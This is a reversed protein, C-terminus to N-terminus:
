LVPELVGCALRAGTTGGPQTFHDDGEAHIMVSAGDSDLMGDPTGTLSVASTLAEMQGTGNEGVFINPLDGAHPGDPHLLGHATDGDDGIHPGASKFETAADCDGVQHLHVGKPGPELGEVDLHVLVGDTGPTFTATGVSTGDMLKLQATAAPQPASAHSDALAAGAVLAAAAALAPLRRKM